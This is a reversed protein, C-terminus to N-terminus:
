PELMSVWRFVFSAGPAQRNQTLPALVYLAGIMYLLPVAISTFLVLLALFPMGQAYLEFVGSILTNEQIRGVLKFALFPFTNAIVFLILSASLLALIRPLMNRSRRRMVNGCRLCCAESTETMGTLDHLADCDLCAALTSAM